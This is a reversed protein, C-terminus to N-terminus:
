LDAAFFRSGVAMVLLLDHVLGFSEQLIDCFHSADRAVLVLHTGYHALVELIHGGDLLVLHTGEDTLVYAIVLARSDHQGTM